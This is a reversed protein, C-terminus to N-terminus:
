SIDGKVKRCYVLTELTLAAPSITGVHHGMHGTRSLHRDAQEDVRRRDPRRDPGALIVERFCMEGDIRVGCVPISVRGDWGLKWRVV